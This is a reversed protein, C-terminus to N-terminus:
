VTEEHFIKNIIGKFINSIEDSTEAIIEGNSYAGALERSFPIEGLLTIGNAKNYYL